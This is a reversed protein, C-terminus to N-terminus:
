GLMAELIEADNTTIQRCGAAILRDLAERVGPRDADVTWADIEAGGAGVREVLNVGHDLGRLILNAELYHTRLGPALRLTTDALAEFEATTTPPGAAYVDLPDFGRAVEPMAAGIRRVLDADTGSIIFAGVQGSLTERLRGLLVDGFRKGAEKMDLQVTGAFPRERRALALVIEDLFLPPSDLVAGDPGRQRLRELDARSAEAVARTGTTERDLTLDHLCVFHGDRTVAVDVELSADTDLGAALNARLFAPDSRRRRLMHWKLRPLGGTM